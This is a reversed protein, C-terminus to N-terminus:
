LWGGGMRAEAQRRQGGAMTWSAQPSTASSERCRRTQLREHGSQRQLPWAHRRRHEAAVPTSRRRAAVGPGDRQSGLSRDRCVLEAPAVLMKAGDGGCRTQAALLAGPVSPRPPFARTANTAVLLDIPAGNACGEKRSPALM